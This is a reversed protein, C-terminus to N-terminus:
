SAMIWVCPKALHFPDPWYYTQSHANAVLKIVKCAAIYSYDLKHYQSWCTFDGSAAVRTM